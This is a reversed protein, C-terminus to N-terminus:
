KGTDQPTAKFLNCGYLSTIFRIILENCSVLLCMLENRADEGTLTDVEPM